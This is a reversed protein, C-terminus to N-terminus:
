WAIAKREFPAVDLTKGRWHIRLAREQARVSGRLGDAGVRRLQFEVGADPGYVPSYGQMSQLHGFAPRLVIPGGTDAFDIGALLSYVFLTPSASWPHAESRTPKTTSYFREVTTTAGAAVLQHWPAIAEDFLDARAHQRLAELLYYRYYYGAQALSSDRVTRELVADVEAAPFLDLLVGLIQSHQDYFDKTPREALLGGPGDYCCTRIGDVVRQAQRAYRRAHYSDAGLRRHLAAASRLARAYHLTVPVSTADTNGPAIGGKGGDYWDIFAKYPVGELFGSQPNYKQGFYALTQDVGPLLERVFVSDQPRRDLYDLLMDIYILSYTSHYFNYRLPYCSKLMGDANRGHHFDLLANKTHAFNGTLAQWVLAHVKTDGVYQMSEYYADSLFYDQTCLEVTRRGLQVVEDLRADDSHWDARIPIESRVEALTPAYLHLPATGTRGKIELYRFARYWTPTYTMARGDPLVTDFYGKVLKGATSDRHSKTKDANFLNEAWTYRLTAGAGGAWRLQPFGFRLTSLDLLIRFDRQPAIILPETGAKWTDSLEHTTERVRDFPVAPARQQAPTRRAELLWLFGSGDSVRHGAELFRARKWRSDDYARTEWGLPYRGAYLSDTPNNAYLGGIIDPDAVRWRVEHGRISTDHYSRYKGEYGRTTLGAAPGYGQILLGTHVSEMGFMRRHGWNTVQVALTNEGTRLYPRLDHRDYKWHPIDGLQPGWAVWTGNVYLRYHNDASIAIPFSDPPAALEFDTRFYVVAHDSGELGPHTIWNASWGQAGVVVPWLCGILIWLRM